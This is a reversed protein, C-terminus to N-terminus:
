KYDETRHRAIRGEVMDAIHTAHDAIRELRRSVSLLDM